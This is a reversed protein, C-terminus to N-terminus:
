YVFFQMTPPLVITADDRVTIKQHVRTTFSTLNENIPACM